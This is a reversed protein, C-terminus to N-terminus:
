NNLWGQRYFGGQRLHSVKDYVLWQGLTIRFVCNKTGYENDNM